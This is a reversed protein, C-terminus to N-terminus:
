VEKQKTYLIIAIYELVDDGINEISHYEGEFCINADGAELVVETGNDNILAKGKLIYYVEMDGEHTHKGISNEGPQIVTKVFLRGAGNAEKENLFHYMSVEGKGDKFNQLVTPQIENSRKIM